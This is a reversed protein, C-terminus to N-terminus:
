NDEEIYGLEKKRIAVDSGLYQRIADLLKPLADMEKNMGRTNLSALNMEIRSYPEFLGFCIVWNAANHVHIVCTNDAGIAIDWGNYTEGRSLHSAKDNNPFMFDTIHEVEAVLKEYPSVADERAKAKAKLRAELSNLAKELTVKSFSQALEKGAENLIYVSYNKAFSTHTASYYDESTIKLKCGEDIAKQTYEGYNLKTV